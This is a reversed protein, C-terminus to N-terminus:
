VVRKRDVEPVRIRVVERALDVDSGQELREAGLVDERGRGDIPSCVDSSWDCLSRTHRGGSPIFFM